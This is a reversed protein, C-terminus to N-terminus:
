PRSYHYEQQSLVRNQEDRTRLLRGFADYEYFLTRGDPATRSTPGVLPAHTFTTVRAAPLRTRLLNIKARIDAASGPNPGALADVAPQGLVALVEPYTANKIEAVVYCANYGWLYTVPAEGPRHQELVNGRADYRDIVAAEQYRADQQFQGQQVASPQFNTPLIPDVTKLQWIRRPRLGDYHVVTGATLGLPWDHQRWQQQEIVPALVHRAVLAQIGRSATDAAGSTAFDLPYRYRTTLTDATGACVRITTPQAHNPNGYQYLTTTTLPAQTTDQAAYRYVVTSDLHLWYSPHSFNQYAYYGTSFERKEPINNCASGRSAVQAMVKFGQIVSRNRSDLSYTNTTRELLRFKSGDESQYVSRSLLQGRRWSNDIPAVMPLETSASDQCVSYESVTKGSRPGDDVSVASYAVAQGSAQGLPSSGATIEWGANPYFSCIGPTVFEIVPEELVGYRIERRYSYRLPLGPTYGSSRDPHNPQVYSYRKTLTPGGAAPSTTIRRIRVGGVLHKYHEYKDPASIDRWTVRMETEMDPNDSEAMLQYTHGTLLMISDAIGTHEDVTNTECGAIKYIQIQRDKGDTIDFLTAGGTNHSWGGTGSCNISFDIAARVDRSYEVKFTTSVTVPTNSPALAAASYVKIPQPIKRREDTTNSEFSLTTRGGTPYIIQQLLGAQVYASDPTRDAQGLARPQYITQFIQRPILDLNTRNNFFGWHDQAYSDRPPLPIASYQFRHGPKRLSGASETIGDLRLRSNFRPAAGGTSQFYSQQLDFRRILRAPAQRTAQAYLEVSGLSADSPIDLRKTSDANFQVYGSAFRIRFLKVAKTEVYSTSTVVGESNPNTPVGNALMYYIPLVQQQSQTPAYSIRHRNYEFSITDTADASIIRSLYWASRHWVDPGRQRITTSEWDAFQYVTGSPSTITLQSGFGLLSAKIVVPDFPIPHPLGDVGFAFQGGGEPYNYSFLDPECDLRNEAVTQLLRFDLVDNITGADPITRRNALFGLTEHEDPLGRLSRSIMGGAQLSWGLGVWSADDTVRIGGAHYTLSIPLKLQRSKVEFLPVSVSPTGSQESVPMTVYRELAATTPSGPVYSQLQPVAPTITPQQALAPHFTGLLLQCICYSRWAWPLVSRYVRSVNNLFLGQVPSFLLSM